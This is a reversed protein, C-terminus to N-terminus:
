DRTIQSCVKPGGGGGGGGGAGIIARVKPACNQCAATIQEIQNLKQEVKNLRQDIQNMQQQIQQIQQRQEETLAEEEQRRDECGIRQARCRRYPRPMNEGQAAAAPDSKQQTQGRM